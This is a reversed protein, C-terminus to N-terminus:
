RGASAVRPRALRRAKLLAEEFQQQLRAPAFMGSAIRAVQDRQREWTATEGFARLAHVIDARQLTEVVAPAELNERAWRVASGEPPGIVLLPLGMQCAEPIKSPFCTRRQQLTEPEFGQPILVLDIHEHFYEQFVRAEAFGHDFVSPRQALAAREIGTTHGFLHLESGTDELVDAVAHLPVFNGGLEGFFGIRLPTGAARRRSPLGSFPPEAPTPYVIDMPSDGYRQALHEAMGPGVCIRAGAQRFIPGLRQTAWAHKRPNPPLMHEFDDHCVVALPLGMQEALDAAALLYTETWVTLIMDPRFALAHPLALRRLRRAERELWFLPSGIRRAIRLFNRSREPLRVGPHPMELNRANEFDRTIIFVEHDRIRSLHRHMVLYGSNLEVPVVFSFYLIKMRSLFTERLGIACPSSGLRAM